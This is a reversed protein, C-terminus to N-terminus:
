GYNTTAIAAGASNARRRLPYVGCESFFKSKLKGRNLFEPIPPGLLAIMEALHTRGRYVGLEPDTGHFLLRGEFIDWIEYVILLPYFDLSTIPMVMCGVNWVDIRDSWPVQLIVEPCQCQDPQVDDDHLKDGFYAAGFDCLVPPGIDKPKQVQRSAYIVRGNIEKRPSSTNVEAQEFEVLASDDEFGFM